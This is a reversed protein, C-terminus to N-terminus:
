QLTVSAITPRSQGPQANGPMNGVTNRVHSGRVGHSACISSTVTVQTPRPQGARQRGLGLTVAASEGDLRWEAPPEARQQDVPHQAQQDAPANASGSRDVGPEGGPAARGSYANKTPKNPWVGPMHSVRIRQTEIASPPAIPTGRASQAAHQQGQQDRRQDHVLSRRPRCSRAAPEITICPAPPRLRRPEAAACPRSRARRRACTRRSRARPCRRGRRDARQAAQRARQRGQRHPTRPLRMSRSACSASAAAPGRRQRDRLRAADATGIVKSLRRKEQGILGRVRQPNGEGLLIVGPRGIVLHVM